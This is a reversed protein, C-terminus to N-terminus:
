RECAYWLTSKVRGRSGVVMGTGPGNLRWAVDRAFRVVHASVPDTADLSLDILLLMPGNM